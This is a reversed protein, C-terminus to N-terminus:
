GVFRYLRWSEDSETQIALAHVTSDSPALQTNRNQESILGGQPAGNCGNFIRCEASRSVPLRAHCVAAETWSLRWWILEFQLIGSPSISITDSYRLIPSLEGYPQNDQLLPKAVSDVLLPWGYFQM